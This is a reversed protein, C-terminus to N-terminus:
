DRFLSPNREVITGWDVIRFHDNFYCVTVTYTDGMNIYLLPPGNRFDCRGSDEVGYGEILKNITELREYTDLAEQKMTARISQATEKDCALGNMITKLTPYNM